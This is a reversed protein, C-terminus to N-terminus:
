PPCLSLPLTRIEPLLFLASGMRAAVSSVFSGHTMEFTGSRESMWKM